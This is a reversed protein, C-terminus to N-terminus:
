SSDQDSIMKSPDFLYGTGRINIVWEEAGPFSSLKRRLRSILPRLVEPAEWENVDYGQVSNVLEHHTIVRGQNEVLCLLLRSETPTLSVHQNGRWLDRRLTDFVVNDGLDLTQTQVDKSYVFGEADKLRKLSGELQQLLLKKQQKEARHALGRSVSSLINQATAPKLIYDHAGHRLAEVATEVTGHATLMIVKTEPSDQSVRRLVEIGSMGPMRIDLLMLDYGITKINKIAAEGSEAVDVDYGDLVLIERLSERVAAEDDVVLIKIEMM